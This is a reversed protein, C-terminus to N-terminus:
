EFVGQLYPRMAAKVGETVLVVAPDVPKAAVETAHSVVQPSMDRTWEQTDTTSLEPSSQAM